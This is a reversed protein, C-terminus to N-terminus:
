SSFWYYTNFKMFDKTLPCSFILDAAQAKSLNNRSPVYGRNALMSKESPLM